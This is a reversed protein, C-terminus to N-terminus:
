ETIRNPPHVAHSSKDIQQKRKGMHDFVLLVDADNFEISFAAKMMHKFSGRTIKRLNNDDDKLKIFHRFLSRLGLESHKANSTIAVDVRDQIYQAILRKDDNLATVKKKKKLVKRHSQYVRLKSVLKLTLAVFDDERLKNDDHKNNNSCIEAVYRNLKEEEENGLLKGDQLMFKLHQASLLHEENSYRRFLQVSTDRLKYLDEIRNEASILIRNRIEKGEGKRGRGRSLLIREVWLVFETKECMNDGDGDIEKIVANLVDLSPVSENEKLFAYKILMMLQLNSIVDSEDPDFESFWNELASQRLTDDALDQNIQRLAPMLKNTICNCLISRLRRHASTMGGHSASKFTKAKEANALKRYNSAVIYGVLLFEILQDARIIDKLNEAGKITIGHTSTYSATSKKFMRSRTMTKLQYWLKEEDGWGFTESNQTALVIKMFENKSLLKDEGFLMNLAGVVADIRNILAQLFNIM